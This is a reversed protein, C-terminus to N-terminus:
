KKKKLKEIDSEIEKVVELHVRIAEFGKNNAKCHEIHKNVFALEGKLSNLKENNKVKNM